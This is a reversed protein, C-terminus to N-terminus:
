LYGEDAFSFYSEETLIIHDLVPIELLKGAEQIQLTLKKDIDSPDLNGSPHNHAIIISCANAKLATQLINRVDMVTGTIGGVSVLLYGLIQNSRNLYLTYFCEKLELPYAWVQRFAAAADKSGKVKMRDSAKIKPRYSIEIESLQSLNDKM